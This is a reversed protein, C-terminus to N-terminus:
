FLEVSNGAFTQQAVPLAAGRLAAHLVKREMETTYSASFAKAVEVENYGDEGDPLQIELERKTREIETLLADFRGFCGDLRDGTNQIRVIKAQMNQTVVKMQEAQGAASVATSRLNELSNRTQRQAEELAQNSSESFAAMLQNTGEVLALIEEMAQGCQQTIEGWEASIKEINKAIALIANAQAGVRTAEIISNFTLLQLCDRVSKSKQLHERVLQMLTSLGELTGQVGDSQSQSAQELQEIRALQSSVEREQELVMPGIGVVESASVRLIGSMCTKIQAGRNAVTEKITRLQYIQITLGACVWPLEQSVQRQTEGKDRLRASIMSFAEQVHEIQQRTIDHAQIASVVGAIQLALDNVGAKFQAPTTSLRTLGSEAIALASMLDGEMRALTERQRPLEACLVLRTEEIAISRADTHTALEQIDESLSQSFETLQDALQQFSNGVIGLHAVEINTLVSLAKTKRAIVAQGRTVLSLKRLLKVESAVMELIGSTTELREGIIGRAVAGLTRVTPLVASVSESEVASVIAATLQLIKDTNVTLDEFAMAVARIESETVRAVAELEANAKELISVAPATTEVGMESQRSLQTWQSADQGNSNTQKM